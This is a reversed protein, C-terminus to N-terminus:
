SVPAAGVRRYTRFERTLSRHVRDPYNADLEWDKGLDRPATTPAVLSLWGGPQVMKAWAGLARQLLQDAPEGSTGSSRGYPPDTVIADWRDAGPPAFPDGADVVKLLEPAVGLHAFNAMAGRIMTTDRDGGSVRAGLLAAEVLLAGTGVFPDVVRDGARIRALNAAVRGLRPPLSVPRQFPLNPMRRASRSSRDVAALEEGLWLGISPDEAFWFRRVPHKLDIRGGGAEWAGALERVVPLPSSSPRGIPRFVAAVGPTAAARMWALAEFRNGPHIPRVCRYAMALRQALPEVLPESPVAVMVGVGGPPAGAAEGAGGGLAEAAAVAEAFALPVNEGSVEVFLTIM